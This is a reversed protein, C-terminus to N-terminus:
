SRPKKKPVARFMGGADDLLEVLFTYANDPTKARMIMNDWDHKKAEAKSEVSQVFDRRESGELLMRM